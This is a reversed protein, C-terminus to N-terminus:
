NQLKQGEHLSTSADKHQLVFDAKYKLEGKSICTIDDKYLMGALRIVEKAM